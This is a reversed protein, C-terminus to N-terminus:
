RAPRENSLLALGEGEWLLRAHTIGGQALRRSWARTEGVAFVRRDSEWLNRFEEATPFHEKREAGSLHSIGFALEGDYAAVGVTRELYVPLSEPFCRYTFVLDGPRRQPRLREAVAKSSRERGVLPGVVQVAAGVCCGAAFLAFVRREWKQGFGSAAALLAVAVVLAGPVLLGPSVVGGLGLRDIKGLGAWVLAAGYLGALASGAAIGATEWRSAVLKGDWLKDIVVGVLVALPPLAPLVYPILKSQSLSFFVVVFGAWILLFAEGRHEALGERASRWPVLRALSPLLGSWPACGLLVVALFYWFPEQREAVPTAYRLLHEHVFYFWLFDPNRAAALVHWPVAIALFLAIGTLWPVRKLVGWRRTALLYLFVVAGPIVIGILGKALVARAAAGFAGHWAARGRRRDNAEQAIWFCTLTATLFFTLTMDLTALRGIAIWLPSTGLAAAALLGARPGAVSRGLRWALAIGALGFLASWLRATFESLGFLRIAAANLWYHLPPKEFYLVGNLHPTVFDGSALMERPVETYRGEDPELLPAGGLNWVLLLILCAAALAPALRAAAGGSRPREDAM